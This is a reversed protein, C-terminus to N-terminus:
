PATGTTARRTALGVPDGLLGVIRGHPPEVGVRDRRQAVPKAGAAVLGVVPALPVDAVGVERDRPAVFAQHRGVVVALRDGLRHLRVALGVPEVREPEGPPDAPLRVARRLGVAASHAVAHERLLHDVQETVQGLRALSPGHSATAENTFGCSM